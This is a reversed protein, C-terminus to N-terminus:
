YIPNLSQLFDARLLGFFLEKEITHLKNIEILLTEVNNADINLNQNIVDIDIQSYTTNDQDVRKLLNNIQLIVHCDDKAFESKFSFTKSITDPQNFTFSFNLTEMFNINEFESIYRVGIRTFLKIEDIKLIQVLVREIENIYDPWLIYEKLCNFIFSNPQIQLKIKDNFFLYQNGIRINIGDVQNFDPNSLSRNTYTYTEDLNQFIYGVLIEFPFPSTYRVEVIADKICRSDIKKPLAM